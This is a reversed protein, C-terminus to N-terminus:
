ALFDLLSKPIIRAGVSLAADLMTENQKLEIAAQAMDTDQQLSRLNTLQANQEILQANVAELSQLITGVKGGKSSVHKVMDAVEKYQATTPAIGAQLSDRIAIMTQFITVGAPTPAFAEMGDINVAQQIGESIPYAITGTIGNPNPTVATRAANIAFPATLTETGGFVYKGNFNSNAIDLGQSLLLDVQGAFKQLDNAQTGNNVTTLLENLDLMVKGFDDLSTATLELASQGDSINKQYQENKSIVGNLRMIADAAQPDDSVTLVKRGTAIQRQLTNIRERNKNVSTLFTSSISNETVRM